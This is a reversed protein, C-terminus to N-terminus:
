LAFQRLEEESFSQDNSRDMSMANAREIRKTQEQAKELAKAHLRGSGLFSPQLGSAWPATPVSAAAESEGRLRLGRRISYQIVQTCYKMHHWRKSYVDRHLNKVRAECPFERRQTRQFRQLVGQTRAFRRLVNLKRISDNPRDVNVIATSGPSEFNGKGWAPAVGWHFGGLRRSAARLAM